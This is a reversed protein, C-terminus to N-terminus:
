FQQLRRKREDDAQKMFARYYQKSMMILLHDTIFHVANAQGDAREYAHVGLWGETRTWTSTSANATLLANVEDPELLGDRKLYRELVSVGNSLGVTGTYVDTKWGWTQDIFNTDNAPFFLGGPYRAAIQDATEGLRAGAGTPLLILGALWLIRLRRAAICASLPAQEPCPHNLPRSKLFDCHFLFRM